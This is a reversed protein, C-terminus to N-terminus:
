SFRKTTGDEMKIVTADVGTVLRGLTLQITEGMSSKAYDVKTLLMPAGDVYITDGIWFDDYIAYPSTRAFKWIISNGEQTDLATTTLETGGDVFM